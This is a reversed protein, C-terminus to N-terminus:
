LLELDPALWCDEELALYCGELFLLFRLKPSNGSAIMLPLTGRYVTSSVIGAPLFGVGISSLVGLKPPVSCCGELFSLIEWPLFYIVGLEDNAICRSFYLSGSFFILM